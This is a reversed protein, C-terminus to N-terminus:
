VARTLIGYWARWRHPPVLRMSFSVANSARKRVSACSNWNKVLPDDSCVGHVLPVSGARLRKMAGDRCLDCDGSERRADGGDCKALGAVVLVDAVQGAVLLVAHDARQVDRCLSREGPEAFGIRRQMPPDRM